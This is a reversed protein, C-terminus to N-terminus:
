CMLHLFSLIRSNKIITILFLEKLLGTIVQSVNNCLCLGCSNIAIANTQVSGREESKKGATRIHVREDCASSGRIWIKRSWYWTINPDLKLVQGVAIETELRNGWNCVDKGIFGIVNAETTVKGSM